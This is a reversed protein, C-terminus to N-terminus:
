ICEGVRAHIRPVRHKASCAVRTRNWHSINFDDAQRRNARAREHMGIM